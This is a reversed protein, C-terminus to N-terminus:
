KEKGKIKEKKFSPLTANLCDDSRRYNGNLGQKLHSYDCPTKFLSQKMFYICHECDDDPVEVVNKIFAM